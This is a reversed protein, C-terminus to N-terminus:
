MMMDKEFLTLIVDLLTTNLKYAQQISADDLAGKDTHQLEIKKGDRGKISWDKLHWVIMYNRLAIPDVLARQADSRYVSCRQRYNSMDEYGIPSFEFWEQTFGVANFDDKDLLGTRSISILKGDEKDFLIDVEIKVRDDDEIFFSPLAAEKPENTEEAKESIDIADQNVGGEKIGSKSEAEALPVAETQQETTVEPKTEPTEAPQMDKEEESM